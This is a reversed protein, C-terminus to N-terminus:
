ILILVIIYIFYVVTYVFIRYRLAYLEHTHGSGWLQATLTSDNIKCLVENNQSLENNWSIVTM